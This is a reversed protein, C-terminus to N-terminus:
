SCLPLHAPGAEPGELKRFQVGHCGLAPSVVPALPQRLMSVTRVCAADDWHVCAAPAQQGGSASAQCRRFSPQEVGLPLVCGSMCAPAAGQSDCLVGDFYRINGLCDCGLELSNACFGLGYDGVDFACKRQFPENPDGYPVAM